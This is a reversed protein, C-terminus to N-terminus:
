PPAPFPVRRVEFGRERLLRPLAQPGVMHLMGVGAFVTDGAAHLAALRDALAPNREDNLRRTFRREAPTDECQCWAPYDALTAEDAEAWARVLRQSLGRSKGSEMDRLGDVVLTREDDEDLGTLAAIQLAPTELPVFRKGLRAAMHLLVTDVGVEPHLGERRAQMVAMTMVQLMAPMSDLVPQPLCSRAALRALLADQGALVRRNRAADTAALLLRGLDPDAPDLELALVTSAIVAARVQPGPVAWEARNLHMTGYLWSTRGDKDLKWLLGRDRLQSAPAHRLVEAGTPPPPPCDAGQAMAGGALLLSALLALLRAILPVHM